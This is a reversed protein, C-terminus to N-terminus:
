YLRGVKKAIKQLKQFFYPSAHNDGGESQIPEVVIGAVPNGKKDWKEILEEV